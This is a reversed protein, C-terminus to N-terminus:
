SGREKEKREPKQKGGGKNGMRKDNSNKTMDEKKTENRVEDRSRDNKMFINKMGQRKSRREKRKM